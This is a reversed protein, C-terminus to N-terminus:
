KFVKLQAVLRDKKTTRLTSTYIFRGCGRVSVTDGERLQRSGNLCQRSNIFVRGLSFLKASESRSLRFVTGALADARLSPVIYERIEPETVPLASLDELREATVTCRGVETLNECIYDAIQELCFVCGGDGDTLIDGALERKIGLGMLAGLYDRHSLARSFRAGKATVRLCCIPFDAHNLDEGFGAVVREAGDYGGCTM